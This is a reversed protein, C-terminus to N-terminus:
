LEWEVNAQVWELMGPWLTTCHQLVPKWEGVPDRRIPMCYCKRGMYETVGCTQVDHQKCNMLALKMEALGERSRKLCAIVPRKKRASLHSCKFMRIYGEIAEDLAIVDPETMFLVMNGGEERMQVFMERLKKLVARSSHPPAAEPTLLCELYRDIIMRLAVLENNGLILPSVNMYLPTLAVSDM